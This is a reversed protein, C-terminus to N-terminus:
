QALYPQLDRWSELRVRPDAADQLAMFFGLIIDQAVLDQRDDSFLEGSGDVLVFDDLVHHASLHRQLLIEVRLDDQSYEPLGDFLPDSYFSTVLASSGAEFVSVFGKESDLKWFWSLSNDFYDLYKQENTYTALKFVAELWERTALTVDQAV